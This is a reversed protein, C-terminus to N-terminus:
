GITSRVAQGIEGHTPSAALARPPRVPPQGGTCSSRTLAVECALGDCAFTCYWM